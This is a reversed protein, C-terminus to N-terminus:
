TTHSATVMKRSFSDTVAEEPMEDWSYKRARM